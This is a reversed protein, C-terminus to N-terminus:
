NDLTNYLVSEPVSFCPSSNLASMERAIGGYCSGRMVVMAPASSLLTNKVHGCQHKVMAIQHPKEVLTEIGDKLLANM